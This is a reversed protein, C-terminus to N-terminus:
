HRTLAQEANDDGTIEKYTALGPLSLSLHVNYKKFAILFEESMIKGNSILVIKEDKNFYEDKRMNQSLITVAWIM